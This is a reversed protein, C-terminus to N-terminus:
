DLWELSNLSGAGAVIIGEGYIVATLLRWTDAGLYTNILADCSDLEEGSFLGYCQDPSPPLLVCSVISPLFM